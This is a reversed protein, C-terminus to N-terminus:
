GTCFEKKGEESFHPYPQITKFVGRLGTIELERRGGENTKGPSIKGDHRASGRKKFAYSFSGKARRRVQRFMKEKETKREKEDPNSQIKRGTKGEEKLKKEEPSYLIKPPGVLAFRSLRCLMANEWKLRKEGQDQKVMNAGREAKSKIFHKKLDARFFPRRPRNEGGGRLWDSDRSRTRSGRM